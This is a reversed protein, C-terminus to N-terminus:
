AFAPKASIAAAPAVIEAPDSPQSEGADNAASVQIQVAGGGQLGGIMAEPDITTAAHEYAEDAAEKKYVRYRAARPAPAWSAHVTGPLGPTLVLNGPVGPAEADAPRNLGFAYWVPDDDDLLQSLEALLGRIRTRLNAEAAEIAAKTQGFTKTGVNVESRASKLASFLEGAREATVNLPVNQHATNANFYDRLSSLLTEREVVTVPVALSNNPFGTATWAASWRNALYNVLVGKAAAIFAKGKSDAETQTAALTKNASLATRYDNDAVRVAALDARVGAETNQKIGVAAEHARLGDAMNEALALLGDLARPLRNSAM